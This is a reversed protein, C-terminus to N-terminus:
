HSARYKGYIWLGLGVMLAGFAGQAVFLIVELSESPEFFSSFWPVHQPALAQVAQTARDDTGEFGGALSLYTTWAVLLLLLAVIVLLTAASTAKSANRGAKIMM